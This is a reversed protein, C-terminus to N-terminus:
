APIYIGSQLRVNRYDILNDKEALNKDIGIGCRIINEHNFNGNRILEKTSISDMAIFGATDCIQRKEEIFVAIEKGHKFFEMDNDRDGYVRWLGDNGTYISKLHFGIYEEFRIGYVISREYVGKFKGRPWKTNEAIKRAADISRWFYGNNIDQMHM